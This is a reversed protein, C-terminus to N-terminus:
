SSSIGTSKWMVPERHLTAAWRTPKGCLPSTIYLESIVQIKLKYAPFWMANSGMFHWELAYPPMHGSQNQWVHWLSRDISDSLYIPQQWHQWIALYAVTLTTLHHHLTRFKPADRSFYKILTLLMRFFVTCKYKYKPNNKWPNLLWTLKTKTEGCWTDTGQLTPGGIAEKVQM